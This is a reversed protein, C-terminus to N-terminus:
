YADGDDRIEKRLRVDVDIPINHGERRHAAIHDLLGQRSNTNFEGFWTYTEGTLPNPGKVEDPKLRCALCQLSHLTGLIYADSDSFRSYSM